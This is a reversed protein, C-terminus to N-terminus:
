VLRDLATIKKVLGSYTADGCPAEGDEPYSTGTFAIESGSPAPESAPANTAVSASPTTGTCAAIIAASGLLAALRLPLSTTRTM